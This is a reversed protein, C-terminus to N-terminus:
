RLDVVEVGEPIQYTFQSDPLGSNMRIDRVLYETKKENVDVLEVKKILWSKDDVWLKLSQILSADNRPVLKVVLTRSDGLQEPDLLTSFFDEPAGTLIQEPTLSGSTLKFRDVLVQKNPVSYSWVTKGDTVVTREPMELRYMNTKKIYLTGSVKQEIGALTMTVMQTFYLRADTIKDYRDRVRELVDEATDSAHLPRAVLVCCFALSLWAFARIM